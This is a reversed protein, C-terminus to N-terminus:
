MYGTYTDSWLFTVLRIQHLNLVPKQARNWATKTNEDTIM